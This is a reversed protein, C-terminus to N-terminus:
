VFKGDYISMRYENNLKPKVKDSKVNFSTFKYNYLEYWM